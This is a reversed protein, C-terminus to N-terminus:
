TLSLSRTKGIGKDSQSLKADGSLDLSRTPSKGTDESHLLRTTESDPSQLNEEPQLMTTSTATTTQLASTSARMHLGTTSTYVAETSQRTSDNIITKTSDTDDSEIVVSETDDRVGVRCSTDEVVVEVRSDDNGLTEDENVEDKVMIYM